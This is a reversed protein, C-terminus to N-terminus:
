SGVSHIAARGPARRQVALSAKVTHAPEECRAYNRGVVILALSSAPACRVQRLVPKPVM